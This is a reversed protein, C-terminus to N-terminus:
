KNKNNTTREKSQKSSHATHSGIEKYTGAILVNTTMSSMFDIDSARVRGPGNDLYIKIPNRAATRAPPLSETAQVDNSVCLRSEHPPLSPQRQHQPHNKDEVATLTKDTTDGPM